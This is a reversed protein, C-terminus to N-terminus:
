TRVHGEAGLLKWIPAIPIGSNNRPDGYHHIGVLEWNMNFIPSGSSGEETNANYVVKTPLIATVHGIGIQLPDGKAHQLILLVQNVEFEQKAPSLKGRIPEVKSTLRLLAFDLLDETSAALPEGMIPYVVQETGESYYGFRASAQAAGIQRYVHWNTLILDHGVLFGTGVPGEPIEIRCVKHQAEKMKSAWEDAPVIRNSSQVLAEFGAAKGSWEAPPAVFQYNKTPITRPPALSNKYQIVADSSPRDAILGDSLEQLRGEAKAWQVVASIGESLPLGNAIGSLPDGLEMYVMTKLQNFSVYSSNLANIFLRHQEITHQLDPL